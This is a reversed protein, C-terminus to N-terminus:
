KKAVGDRVFIALVAPVILALGDVLEIKETLIAGATGLIIGLSGIFTKTLGIRKLFAIM